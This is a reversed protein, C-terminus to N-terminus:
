PKRRAREPACPIGGRAITLVRSLSLSLPPRAALATAGPESAALVTRLAAERRRVDIARAQRAGDAASDRLCRILAAQQLGNLVDGAGVSDGNRNCGIIQEPGKQLGGVPRTRGIKPAGQAFRRSIADKRILAAPRLFQLPPSEAKVPWM